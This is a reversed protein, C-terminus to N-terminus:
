DDAADTIIVTGHMLVANGTSKRLSWKKKCANATVASPMTFTFTSGSIVIDGSAVTAVNTGDMQDFYVGLTLGTLTVAAGQSDVCAISITPTEGTFVNIDTEDSRQEVVGSLPVITVNNGVGAVQLTLYRPDNVGDTISYLVTGEGSPRDNANYALQYMYKTGVAGVYTIAGSIASSSGGDIQKTGTLIASPYMYFFQIAKTDTASREVPPYIQYNFGANFQEKISGVTYTGAIDGPFWVKSDQAGRQNLQNGASDLFVCDYWGALAETVTATFIGTSGIETLSDGSGNRRTTISTGSDDYLHVTLGTQGSFDTLMTVQITKNAM